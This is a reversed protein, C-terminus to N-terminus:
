VRRTYFRGIAFQAAIERISKDILDRPDRNGNAWNGSSGEEFVQYPNRQYTYGISPFGKPTKVIDTVQVSEAFRGTRNVLAPEKMNKRVTNPLEKNILGILQLPHSSVGSTAKTKRGRRYKSKAVVASANGIKNKTGTKSKTKSKYSKSKGTVKTNKVGRFKDVVMKEAKQKLSSSGEMDALDPTIQKIFNRYVAKLAKEHASDGINGKSTQFSIISVYDATLKGAKTVIQRSNTVLKIIERYQKQAEVDVKSSAEGLNHLLLKKSTEDLASVSKAIEVQSVATGKSGHGKHLNKSVEQKGKESIAGRKELENLMAKKIQTISYSFSSVIFMTKGLKFPLRISPLKSVIANYRRTNKNKFREHFGLARKQGVKLVANLDSPSVVLGPVALEIAKQLEDVDALILLQGRQREVAKRAESDLKRLLPKDFNKTLSKKSM